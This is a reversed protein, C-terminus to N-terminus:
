GARRGLVTAAIEDALTASTDALGQRAAAIEAAIQEKAARVSAEARRRADAVQGAQDNLWGRRTEEQALYVEARAERFKVEYEQQKRDAEALSQQAAARAGETLEDRQKLVKELPGFLMVKFYFRLVLLLLVTPIAKLLAGGLAQLTQEM